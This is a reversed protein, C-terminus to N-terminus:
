SGSIDNVEKRRITTQGVKHESKRWAAIKYKGKYFIDEINLCFVM